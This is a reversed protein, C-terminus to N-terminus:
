GITKRELYHMVARVGSECLVSLLVIVVTWAFVDVTELTIKAQYLAYGMSSRTLGIVEAAVGSKFAFGVGVSVTAALHPLLAPWYLYRWRKFWGIQFLDAMELLQVNTSTLGALGNVYAMPLVVLFSIITSIYRNSAWVLVLIIFSAVPIAKMTTLLPSLLDKFLPLRYSLAALMTGMLVGLGFGLFIHWSSALMIKWFHAKGALQFTRVAVSLPSVLLIPSAVLFSALQWVFLWFVIALAKKWAM